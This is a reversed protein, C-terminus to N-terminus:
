GPVIQILVVLMGIDMDGRPRIINLLVFNVRVIQGCGKNM